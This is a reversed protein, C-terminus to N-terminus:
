ALPAPTAGPFDPARKVVDMHSRRAVPAVSVTPLSKCSSSKPQPHASPTPKHGQVWTSTGYVGMPLAADGSCDEYVNSAYSAPINWYCGMIDYVHNCLATARAGVCARICFETDSLFSTWEHYQLGSGFTNGYLLGGIPNGRGDAGRNDLEGGEDGKPVNIKTFNGVGTVQVYEPTKVFHVGKLTGNPMTRTGRGSKTCYAVAETEIDGIAALRPPGWICFDSASNIWGTQCKSSSSSTTGCNNTGYQGSQSTTPLSNVSYGANWVQNINGRCSWVQIQNGADQRGGSLDLCKGKNLWTLTNAWRNYDWSQNPNGSGCTWIQMKTGDANKGDTVDLCKNGYAKVQNNSFTWKQSAANNCPQITVKAGDSNSAATLCLASNIGPQLLLQGTYAPTGAANVSAALVALAALSRTVGVFM